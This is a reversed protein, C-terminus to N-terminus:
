TGGGAFLVHSRMRGYGAQEDHVAGPVGGIAQAHEQFQVAVPGADGVAGGLGHLRGGVRRGIDHQGLDEQGVGAPVFERVRWARWGSATNMATVVSM